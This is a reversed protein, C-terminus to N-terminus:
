SFIGGLIVVVFVSVFFGGCNPQISSLDCVLAQIIYHWSSQYVRLRVHSHYNSLSRTYEMNVIYNKSDIHCLCLKLWQVHPKKQLFKIENDVSIPIISHKKLGIFYIYLIYTTGQLIYHHCLWVESWSLNQVRCDHLYSDSIPWDSKLHGWGTLVWCNKTEQWFCLTINLSVLIVIYQGKYRLGEM